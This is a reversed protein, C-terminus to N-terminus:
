GRIQTCCASLLDKKSGWPVRVPELVDRDSKSGAELLLSGKPVPCCAALAGASPAGVNQSMPCVAVGAPLSAPPRSIWVGRGEHRASGSGACASRQPQKQATTSRAYHKCTKTTTSPEETPSRPSTTSRCATPGDACEAAQNQRWTNHEPKGGSTHTSSETAHAPTKGPSASTNTAADTKPQGHEAADPADLRQQEQCQRQDKPLLRSPPHRLIHDRVPMGVMHLRSSRLAQKHQHGHCPRHLHPLRPDEGIPAEEQAPLPDPQRIPLPSTPPSATGAKGCGLLHLQSQEELVAQFRNARHQQQSHM